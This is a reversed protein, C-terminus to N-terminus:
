GTYISRPCTEAHGLIAWWLAEEQLPIRVGGAALNRPGLLGCELRCRSRNLRKLVACPRSWSVCLSLGRQLPLLLGCRISRIVVRVCIFLNFQFRSFVVLSSQRCAWRTEQGLTTLPLQVLTTKNQQIKPQKSKKQNTNLKTIQIKM